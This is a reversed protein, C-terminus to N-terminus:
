SPLLVSATCSVVAAGEGVAGAFVHVVKVIPSIWNILKRNGERYEKFKEAEDKLLWLVEDSSDCGELLKAFDYKSLDVGTQKTYDNLANQLISRFNFASTRSGQQNASSMPRFPPAMLPDRLRHTTLLPSSLLPDSAGFM